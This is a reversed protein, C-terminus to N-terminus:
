QVEVSPAQVSASEADGVPEAEVSVGETAAPASIEGPPADVSPIVPLGVEAGDVGGAPLEGGEVPVIPLDSSAPPAGIIPLESVPASEPAVAGSFDLGDGQGAKGSVYALGLSALFFVTAFIATMRTMFNGSGSSGFITQSAGGGFSAGAEAGKGQQLLVLGILGLASLVEVILLITYEM